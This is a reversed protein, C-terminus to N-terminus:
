HVILKKTLRDSGSELEIVYIGASLGITSITQTNMNNNLTTSLVKRGLINYLSVNTENTQTALGEITIHSADVEKYANLMSTSVEGSSMTDATMHIFFRGVGELDSTPTYVFDGEYLNTFTGEEVDELYVNPDPITATHLNIRFEQGASQNIVLPIVANEMADLGMANIAMGHGEDEEVLRTMISSSQSYSGADWGPNLGLTLGEDFFLKTNGVANNNNYIRLEIETNEIVDGSIFDDSGSVTRMDTDFSINNSGGAAIFFGQGPSIYVGSYNSSNYLTWVSGDGSTDGDYAYIASYTSDFQASNDTYFHQLDLYSPFPNGVLNWKGNAGHSGISIAETENAVLLTGTFSLTTGTMKHSGLNSWGTNQGTVVWESDTANSGFSDSGVANPSTVTGKRELTHEATANTEGAVDWASGPDTGITGIVDIVTGNKRLAVADDGNFGIAAENNAAAELDDHANAHNHVMVWTKGNALTAGSTFSRVNSNESSTNGNWNIQFDYNDLNITSGTGNYVELYKNYGSGESYKSILLETTVAHTGSRYGTGANITNSGDTDSDFNSYDGANRDFSSFLYITADSPNTIIKGTNNSLLNSFTQGAFPSSILDATDRNAVYRNYTYTGSGSKSTPILSGFENSDSNITVTGSNAIEGNVTLGGDKTITIAGSNIITLDNSVASTSNVTVTTSQIIEVNSSSTPASGSTWTSGTGWNGTQTNAEKVVYSFANISNEDWSTSYGNGDIKGWASAVDGNSIYFAYKVTVTASQAPIVCLWTRNPDNYNNFNGEVQTGNSKNPTSNDTTYVIYVRKGSTDFTFNVYANAAANNNITSKAATTTGADQLMNSATFGTPNYSLTTTQTHGNGSQSFSFNVFTLLTFTFILFNRM